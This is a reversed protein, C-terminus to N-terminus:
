AGAGLPASRELVVLTEIHPTQPFLDFIEVRTMRYSPEVEAISALDRSLTAPDCSLYVIRQAGIAGLVAAVTRPLGTRPPDLVIVTPTPEASRELAAEVPEAIVRVAGLGLTAVNHALDASAGRGSEIAKVSAFARGLGVTFFGAGAYLELAVGAEADLGETAARQVAEALTPRLLANAQAFVGASIRLSDDGLQLASADGVWRSGERLEARRVPASAASAGESEAFLEVETGAEGQPRSHGLAAQLAPVLVPCEDIAVVSHSARRRYGLAGAEATVLRARGRYGYSSPSAHVRIDEPARLGGIRRLAQVVIERKADLQAGYAIHQWSCGGCEGFYSCPPTSRDPSAELIAEIRARAYRKKSELIRVRVVDGPVSFPVFVARGDALRGVGDGGAALGHISIEEIEEPPASNGREPADSTM